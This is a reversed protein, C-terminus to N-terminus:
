SGWTDFATDSELYSRSYPANPTPSTTPVVNYQWSFWGTNKGVYSVTLEDYTTVGGYGSTGFYQWKPISPCAMVGKWGADPPFIEVESAVVVEACYFEDLYGSSLLQPGRGDHTDVYASFLGLGSKGDCSVDGGSATAGTWYNSYHDDQTIGVSPWFNAYYGTTTDAEWFAFQNPQEQSSITGVGYGNQIWCAGISCDTAGTQEDLYQLNHSELPNQTTLGDINISGEVGDYSYTPYDASHQSSYYYGIGNGGDWTCTQAYAITNSVLIAPIAL